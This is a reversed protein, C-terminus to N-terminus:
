VNHIKMGTAKWIEIFYKGIIKIKELDGGMKNNMYAFLDAIWFKMTCGADILKNATITRLIGLAIHM